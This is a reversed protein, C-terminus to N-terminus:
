QEMLAEGVGNRTVHATSRGCKAVNTPPVSRLDRHECATASLGSDNLESTAAAAGRARTLAAGRSTAFWATEM